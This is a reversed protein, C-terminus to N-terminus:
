AMFAIPPGASDRAAVACGASPPATRTAAGPLALGGIAKMARAAMSARRPAAMLLMAGATGVLARSSPSATARNLRRRASAPRERVLARRRPGSVPDLVYMLGAGVAVGAISVLKAM